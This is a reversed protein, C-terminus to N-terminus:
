VKLILERIVKRAIAGAQHILRAPLKGLESQDISFVFYYRGNRGLSLSCNDERFLARNKVRKPLETIYVNGDHMRQVKCKGVFREVDADECCSFDAVHLGNELKGFTMYGDLTLEREIFNKKNQKM